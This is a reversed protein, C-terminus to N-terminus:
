SISCIEAAGLIPYRATGYAVGVTARVLQYLKLAKDAFHEGGHQHYMLATNFITVTAAIALNQESNAAQSPPVFMIGHNYVYFCKTKSADKGM